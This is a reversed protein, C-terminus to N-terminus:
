FISELFFISEIQSYMAVYHKHHLCLKLKLPQMNETMICFQKRMKLITELKKGWKQYIGFYVEQHM